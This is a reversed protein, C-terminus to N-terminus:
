ERFNIFQLPISFNATRLSAIVSQLDDRQKGTIRLQDEQIAAQVKLNFGKIMKILEKAKEQDIGAIIKVLCKVLGDHGPEIKGFEASKLDVNRKILKGKLIDIVARMKFEDDSLLHIGDKDVTIKSKSGKFDYRTTIEKIAQHVANDVEQRNVQSVIDFSPM